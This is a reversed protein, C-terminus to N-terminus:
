PFIVESEDGSIAARLLAEKAEEEEKSRQEEAM